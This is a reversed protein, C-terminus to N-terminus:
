LPNTSFPHRGLTEGRSPLTTRSAPAVARTPAKFFFVVSVFKCKSPAIHENENWNSSDTPFATPFNTVFNSAVMKGPIKLGPEVNKELGKGFNKSKPM